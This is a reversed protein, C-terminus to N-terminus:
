RRIAPMPTSAGTTASAAKMASTACSNPCTTSRRTAASCLIPNGAVGLTDYRWDDALLLLINLPKDAARVSTIFPMLAMATILATASKRIFHLNM